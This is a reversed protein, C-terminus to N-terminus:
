LSHVTGSYEAAAKKLAENPVPPNVLAEFFIERDKESALIRNREEVIRMAHEQASFIVFETLTRFGGIQAAYEFFEKQEKPLKTDFRAKEVKEM